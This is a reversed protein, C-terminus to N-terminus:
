LNYFRSNLLLNLSTMEDSIKTCVTLINTLSEKEKAEEEDDDTEEEEEEEDDYITFVSDIYTGILEYTKTDYIDGNASKLYQCGELTIRKVKISEQQEEVPYIQSYMEPLNILCKQNYTRVVKPSKIQSKLNLNAIKKFNEFHIDTDCLGSSNIWGLQEYSMCEGDIRKVSRSFIAVAVILGNSKGKVFWLCDGHKAKKLFFKSDASLSNIGWINFVSSNFLEINNGVRFLWNTPQVSSM